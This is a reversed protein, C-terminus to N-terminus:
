IYSKQTYDRQLRSFYLPSFVVVVYMFFFDDPFNKLVFLHIFFIFNDM